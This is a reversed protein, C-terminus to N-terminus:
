SYAVRKFHGIAGEPVKPGFGLSVGHYLRRLRQTVEDRSLIEPGNGNLSDRWEYREVGSRSDRGKYDIFVETRLKKGM